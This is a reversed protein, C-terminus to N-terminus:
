LIQAAVPADVSQIMLPSSLFRHNVGSSRSRATSVAFAKEHALCTDSEFRPPAGGWPRRGARAPPSCPLCDREVRVHRRMWADAVTRIRQM